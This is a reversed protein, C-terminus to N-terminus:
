DYWMMPMACSGTIGPFVLTQSGRAWGRLDFGLDSWGSTTGIIGVAQIRSARGKNRQYLITIIDLRNNAVWGPRMRNRM